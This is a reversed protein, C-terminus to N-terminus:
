VYRSISVIMPQKKNSDMVLVNQQRQIFLQIYAKIEWYLRYRASITNYNGIFTTNSNFKTQLDHKYSFQLCCYYFCLYKCM